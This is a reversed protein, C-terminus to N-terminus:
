DYELGFTAAIPFLLCMSSPWPLRYLHYLVQKDYLRFLISHTRYNEYDDQKSRGCHARRTWLARQEILVTHATVILFKLRRPHNEIGEVQGLDTVAGRCPFLYEALNLGTLHWGGAERM